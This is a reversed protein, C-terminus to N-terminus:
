WNIFDVNNKGMKYNQQMDDDPLWDIMQIRKRKKANPMPCKLAYHGIRLCIGCKTMIKAPQKKSLASERLPVKGSRHCTSKASEKGMRKAKTLSALTRRRNGKTSCNREKDKRRFNQDLNMCKEEVSTVNLGLLNVIDKHTREVNSNGDSADGYRCFALELMAKWIDTQDLNLRKGESFKTVTGFFGKCANSSGCRAIKDITKLQEEDWTPNESKTQLYTCYKPVACKSHDGCHHRIISGIQQLCQQRLVENGIDNSYDSIPRHLDTHISKIRENSLLYRGNFSSDISRVKYLMNNVDKIVHGIDPSHDAKGIAANGIIEAQKQILKKSTRTDCDTITQAAFIALDDGRYNGDEDVLLDRAVENAQYEEASAPNHKSNRYCLGERAMSFNSYQDVTITTGTAEEHERIRTNLAHTCKACSIQSHVMGIPKKTEHSNVILVSQRGKIRHNFARTCGAGDASIVGNSTSHVEGDKEWVIDGAYNMRQRTKAVHEKRNEIMRSKYVTNIAQRVKSNTHRINRYDAIKISLKNELADVTKKMGVGVCFLTAIKVNIEPKQNWIEKVAAGQSIDRMTLKLPHGCTAAHCTAMNIFDEMMQANMFIYGDYPRIDCGSLLDPSDTSEIACNVYDSKLFEVHAERNSDTTPGSIKSVHFEDSSQSQSPKSIKSMERLAANIIGLHEKAKESCEDQLFFDRSPNISIHISRGQKSKFRQENPLPLNNNFHNAPIYYMVNNFRHSKFFIDHRNANKLAHSVIDATLAHDVGCYVLHDRIEDATVWLAAKEVPLCNNIILIRKRVDSNLPNNCTVSSKLM